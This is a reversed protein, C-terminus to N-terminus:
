RTVHSPRSSPPAATAGPMYTTRSLVREPWQVRLTTHSRQDRPIARAMGPARPGLEFWVVIFGDRSDFRRWRRINWAPNAQAEAPHELAFDWGRWASKADRFVLVVHHFDVRARCAEVDDPTLALHLV